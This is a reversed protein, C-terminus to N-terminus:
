EPAGRGYTKRLVTEESSVDKEQLLPGRQVFVSSFSVDRYPVCTNVTCVHIYCMYLGCVVPQDGCPRRTKRCHLTGRASTINTVIWRSFM